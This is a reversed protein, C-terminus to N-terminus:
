SKWGLARTLGYLVGFCLVLSIYGSYDHFAHGAAEGYANGVIGVGAIRMGNIVLSLPIVIAVLIVNAWWRLRAILVLFFVIAMVALLLKLGSCPVGVNLEYNNLAITDATVRIPDLRIVTLISMAMDTSKLQLPQTFRDILPGFVPLGFLLYTIPVSVQRCWKFGAVFWVSCLIFGILLISMLSHM